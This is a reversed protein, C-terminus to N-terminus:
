ACMWKHAGFIPCAFKEVLKSPNKTEFIKTCLKSKLNHLLQQTFNTGTKYKKNKKKAGLSWKGNKCRLTAGM